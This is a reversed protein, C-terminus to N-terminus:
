LGEVEGLFEGGGRGELLAEVDIGGASLYRESVGVNVRGALLKKLEAKWAGIEGKSTRAMQQENWRRKKGKGKRASTNAAFDESDYEAGLEEAGRRFLSKEHAAKPKALGVDAIKKALTTREKLRSVIQRNLQLTRLGKNKTKSANAQAHVQAILKKTGGVENPACILVSTGSNGQRATRGSRHVYTTASDPLHYHIVAQVFPIDLGRAAIDTAVLINGKGKVKPHKHKGASFREFSDLRARQAMAGHLGYVQLGLNSLFPVLRRVADISNAFVLIRADPFHTLLLAYLYLDKELADCCLLYSTLSTPLHSNPSADIIKPPNSLALRNLLPDLSDSATRTAKRHGSLKHNLNPSFTASFILTQRTPFPNTSNQQLSLFQSDNPGYHRLCDLINELEKFHGQSLLRDAEDLILFKIRQLWALLGTSSSIHDWLRGPTGIIIDANVLTRQQKQISLDGVVTAIRPSVPSVDSCLNTLHDSLQQALERTPSIILAVPPDKREQISKRRKNYIRSGHELYYELIPIGFALTKGSGTSAKGIVNHGQLIEPIASSQIATPRKFCLKALSALVQPSLHLAQWASVDEEEVKKDRLIQFGNVGSLQQSSKSSHTERQKNLSSKPLSEQLKAKTQSRASATNENPDSDGCGDWENDDLAADTQIGADIPKLHTAEEGVRYEVRGLKEDRVIEVDSIEELGFFGEADDLNDAVPVASWPLANVGVPSSIKRQKQSGAQESRKRKKSVIASTAPRPVSEAFTM